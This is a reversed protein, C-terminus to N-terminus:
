NGLVELMSPGGPLTLYCPYKTGFGAGLEDIYWYPRFEVVKEEIFLSKADQSALSSSLASPLYAKIDTGDGDYLIGPYWWSDWAVNTGNDLVWFEIVSSKNGGVCSEGWAAAIQDTNAYPSMIRYREFGDAKLVEVTQIGLDTSSAVLSLQDFWEGEGLSVWTYAKALTFATEKNITHENVEEGEAIAVTGKYTTGVEMASVNLVCGVQAEGAAFSVSTNYVTNGNELTEVVTANGAVVIGVPLTATLNVTAAEASNSRVVPISVTELSADLETESYVVYFMSPENGEPTYIDNVQDLNCAVAVFAVSAALFTKFIKNM